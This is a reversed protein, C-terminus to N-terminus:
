WTIADVADNSTCANVATEADNSAKRIADIEASMAALEAGGTRIINLQKYEPWKATIRAAAEQKIAFVRQMKAQDLTRDDHIIIGDITHEVWRLPGLMMNSM